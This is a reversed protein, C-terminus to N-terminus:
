ITIQEGSTQENKLWLMSEIMNVLSSFSNHQLVKAIDINIGLEKNILNVIETARLSDIGISTLETTDVVGNVGQWGVRAGIVELLYHRISQDNVQQLLQGAAFGPRHQTDALASRAALVNFGGQLYEERCKVRQLKGSTTRPIGLPTTLVIDAPSLGFMGTVAMDIAAMVTVPDIERIRSRRIEAVIVWQDRAANICFVAVGNHEIAEHCGEVLQEIDYPYVNRGRIILMETLRGNVFLQDNYLFGLDGTRLYRQNDFEYFFLDNDKNWYGETVSPGGICIEGEELVACRRATEPAVIRVEMGPLISGSSVVPRANNDSADSLLIRGLPGRAEQVYLVPPPQGQRHGTVLLTAEALGYCPKFAAADFGAPGVHAAFRLLTDHRIPESGNYAVKWSSLDLLALDAAPIKDVCLDYAFNPGGSHTVEYRSIAQLWRRPHQIFQIPALLICTCGCYITHLINGILGMDHHFPLWSLIVSQSDCGFTDRILAQNHLLNSATIVVGKPKGTSGSTYQIFATNHYRPKKNVPVDITQYAVDTAIIPIACRKFYDSLGVRLQDISFHACLVAAVDADEMIHQLRAMQRSGRAFPVPVAIIGMYQCALFSLLFELTDHYVLLVRKGYLEQESLQAALTRVWGDVDQYSVRREVAEGDELIIFATAAPRQEAHGMLRDIITPIGM